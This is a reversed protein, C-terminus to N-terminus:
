DYNVFFTEFFRIYAFNSAQIFTSMRIAPVYSSFCHQVLCSFAHDGEKNVSFVFIGISYLPLIPSLRRFSLCIKRSYLRRIGYITMLSFRTIVSIYFSSTGNQFDFRDFIRNQYTEKQFFSLNKCLKKQDNVTRSLDLALYM